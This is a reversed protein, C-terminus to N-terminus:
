SELTVMNGLKGLFDIHFLTNIMSIENNFFFGNSINSVFIEDLAIAQTCLQLCDMETKKPKGKKYEM